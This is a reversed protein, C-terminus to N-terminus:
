PRNADNRSNPNSAAALSIAEKLSVLENNKNPPGEAETELYISRSGLKNHGLLESSLAPM